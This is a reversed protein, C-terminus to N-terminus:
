WHKTNSTHKGGQVTCKTSGPLEYMEKEKVPKWTIEAM